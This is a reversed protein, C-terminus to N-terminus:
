NKVRVYEGPADCIPALRGDGPIRASVKRPAQGEVWAFWDPWWSGKTEAAFATWEELSGFPRGSTWYSYKAKSPPNIVGAIHGSGALVYRVPGGFLLAGRFVSAAPAIHDDRAALFYTPVEVKELDLTVGDLTMEGKALKNNMYFNRLYFSHNCAPLRTSDSNWFLLDFAAPAKGRVYNDVVYSWLLDNPRLMNFTMAMKSGDLYGAEAMQAEISRVQNEDVFVQLDGADTFDAQATFFTASSIRDDGKKAMYALGSALLTGGICYGIASVSKEGIASEVADLAALIGERFYDEFTKDRHRGDPNVWSVVFVTLGQAVAWGVFSKERNLDLIYYKNIWPPIVLLPRQLVDPTSPAYQILEMLDNRYVVKGPTVAVNVGLEFKSSDTQRIRLSGRGATLDEAFLKAGRVLNDGNTEFTQKMLEPNTAIFNAPSLASAVQRLHFKARARTRPDVDTSQDVLQDAWSAGIAHAQRLFEYIPLQSWEPAAFRKDKALPVVPDVREGNLRKYTHGWLQLFPVTIATQAQAFRTPDSMWHEVIRGISVAAAMLTESADNRETTQTIEFPKLYASLAKGSQDVFNAVNIALKAFDPLAAAVDASTADSTPAGGGDPAPKGPLTVDIPLATSLAKELDDRQASSTM